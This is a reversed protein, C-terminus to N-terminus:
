TFTHVWHKILMCTERFLFHQQESVWRKVQIATPITYIYGM